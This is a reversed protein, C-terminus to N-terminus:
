RKGEAVQNGPVTELARRRASPSYEVDFDFEVEETGELASQKKPKLLFIGSNNFTEMMKLVESANKGTVDLSLLVKRPTNSAQILSDNRAVNQANIKNITIKRVRVTSPIRQEIQALLQTWSFSKRQILEDAVLMSLTQDPSLSQVIDPSKEAVKAEEELKKVKPQLEAIQDDLDTITSLTRMGLLSALLFILLVGLWFLRRDRFPRSSLNVLPKM